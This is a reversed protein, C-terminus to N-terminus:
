RRKEIFRSTRPRRAHVRMRRMPRRARRGAIGAPRSAAAREPRWVNDREWSRPDYRHRDVEEPQRGTSPRSDQPDPRGTADPSSRDNRHLNSRRHPVDAGPRRVVPPRISRRVVPLAPFGARNAGTVPLLVRRQLDGVKRRRPELCQHLREIGESEPQVCRSRLAPSRRVAHLGSQGPHQCQRRLDPRRLPRRLRRLTRRGTGGPGHLGALGSCFARVRDHPPQVTRSKSSSAPRASAM